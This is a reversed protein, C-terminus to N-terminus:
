TIAFEVSLTTGPEGLVQLSGGLQSAFAEMIAM